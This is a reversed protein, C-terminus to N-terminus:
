EGTIVEVAEGYVSAVYARMVAILPTSGFGRFIMSNIYIEGIWEPDESGYILDIKMSEIIPGGANWDTSFHNTANGEIWNTNGEWDTGKANSSAVWYDLEAGELEAVKKM